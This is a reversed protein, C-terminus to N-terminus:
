AAPGPAYGVTAFEDVPRQVLWTGARGPLDLPALLLDRGDRSLRVRAPWPSVNLVHTVRTGGPTAALVVVRGTGLPLEVACPEGTRALRALVPIYTAVATVGCAVAQDLRDAWADPDLRFCHVEGSLVLDRRLDPLHGLTPPANTM